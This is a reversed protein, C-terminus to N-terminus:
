RRGGELFELVLKTVADAKEVFPIHGCKAFMEVRIGPVLEAWKKAYAAPILKDDEGWILLSPVAIRHLWRELAPNFWRPEWALRAAMFRNTLVVDAEEENLTRSLVADAFRQDFYLNRVLEEPGWIFNDGTSIGKIRL